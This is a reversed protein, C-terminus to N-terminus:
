RRTSRTASQRDGGAALAASMVNETGGVNTRDFDEEVGWFRFYGAAHIVYRCGDVARSVTEADLIDGTVVDINPYKQLWLHDAPHRTLVRASRGTRCLTAILHRGLFGTGGTVLIM